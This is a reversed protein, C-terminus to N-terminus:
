FYKVWLESFPKLYKKRHGWKFNFDGKKMLAAREEPITKFSEFYSKIVLRLVPPQHLCSSLQPWQIVM